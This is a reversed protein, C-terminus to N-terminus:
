RHMGLAFTLIQGVAQVVMVFPQKAQGCLLRPRVTHVTRFHAGFTSLQACGRWFARKAALFEVHPFRIADYTTSCRQSIKIIRLFVGRM